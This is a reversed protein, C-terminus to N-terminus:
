VSTDDKVAGPLVSGKEDGGDAASRDATQLASLSREIAWDAAESAGKAETAGDQKSQAAIAMWIEAQALADQEEQLAKDAFNKAVDEGDSDTDAYAAKSKSSFGGFMKRVRWSKSKEEKEPRPAAQTAVKADPKSVDKAALVVGTWDGAQIMGDLKSAAKKDVSANGTSGSGYGSSDPEHLEVTGASITSNSDAMLAAANGVAEWNGSEIAKEMSERVAKKKAVHVVDGSGVAGKSDGKSPKVIPVWDSSGEVSQPSQVEQKFNPESFESTSSLNAPSPTRNRLRAIPTEERLVTVAITAGAAGAAAGAARPPLGNPPLGERTSQAGVAKAAQMKRKQRVERKAVLKASKNRAARERKAITREQMTRLTEVLEEERGKFQNMMEDINNIEDPVVRRVLAEVEARIEALRVESIGTTSSAAPSMVSSNLGVSTAEEDSESESDDYSSDDSSSGGSELSEAHSPDISDNGLSSLGPSGVAPSPFLADASSRSRVNDDFSGPSGIDPREFKSAALVVGEWDATDVLRDLEKANASGLGSATSDDNSNSSDGISGGALITATAGVAAWDGAKIAAELDSHTPIRMESSEFSSVSDNCRVGSKTFREEELVAEGPESKYVSVTSDALPAFQVPGNRHREDLRTAAGGAALLATLSKHVNTPSTASTLTGSELDASDFSGTNLSSLGASSSWGSSGAQSSSVDSEALSGVDGDSGSNHTSGKREIPIAAAGAAAGAAVPIGAHMKSQELPSGSSVFESADEPPPSPGFAKQRREQRKHNTYLGAITVIGAAFAGCAIGIVAATSLGDPPTGVVAPTPSPTIAISVAQFGPYVLGESKIASSLKDEFLPQVVDPQEGDDLNLYVVSQMLLCSSCSSGSLIIVGTYNTAACEVDTTNVITANNLALVLLRSRSATLVLRRRKRRFDNMLVQSSLNQLAEEITALMDNNQRSTIEGVTYNNM